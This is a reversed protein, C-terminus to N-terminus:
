RIWGITRVNSGNGTLRVSGCSEILKKDYSVARYNCLKDVQFREYQISGCALQMVALQRIVCYDSICSDM